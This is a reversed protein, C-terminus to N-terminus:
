KPCMCSNSSMERTKADLSARMAKREAEWRKEKRVMEEEKANLAGQTRILEAELEEAHKRAKEAAQSYLIPYPSLCPTICLWHVLQASM